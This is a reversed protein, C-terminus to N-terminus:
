RRWAFLVNQYIQHLVISLYHAFRDLRVQLENQSAEKKKLKANCEKEFDTIEQTQKDLIENLETRHKDKLTKKTEEMTAEISQLNNIEDVINNLEFNQLKSSDIGEVKTVRNASDIREAYAEPFMSEKGDLSVGFWWGQGVDSNSIRIIDGKKATLEGEDRPEFDYLVKAQFTMKTLSTLQHDVDIREVYAEPFMGEKGDM